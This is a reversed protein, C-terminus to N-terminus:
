AQYRPCKLTPLVPREYAHTVRSRHVHDLQGFRALDRGIKPYMRILLPSFVGGAPILRVPGTRISTRRQILVGGSSSIQNPCAVPAGDFSSSVIMLM